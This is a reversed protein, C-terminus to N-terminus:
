QTVGVTELTCIAAAGMEVSVITLITKPIVPVSIPIAVIAVMALSFRPSPLKGLDAVPLVWPLDGFKLYKDSRYKQESQVQAPSSLGESTV